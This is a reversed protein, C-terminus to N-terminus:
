RFIQSTLDWLVDLCKLGKLHKSHRTVNTHPAYTRTHPLFLSLSFSLSFSVHNIILVNRARAHMNNLHHYLNNTSSTINIYIIYVYVRVYIYTHIHFCHRQIYIFIYSYLVLIYSRMACMLTKFHGCLVTLLSGIRLTIATLALSM